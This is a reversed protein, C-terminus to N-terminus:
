GEEVEDVPVWPSTANADKRDYNSNKEGFGFVGRLLLVIM